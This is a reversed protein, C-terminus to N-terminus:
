HSQYKVSERFFYWFKNFWMLAKIFCNQLSIIMCKKAKDKEQEAATKQPTFNRNEMETVMRQADDLMQSLSDNPLADGRSETKKLQDLLGTSVFM